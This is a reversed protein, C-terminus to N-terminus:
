HSKTYTPQEAGGAWRPLRGLDDLEARRLGDFVEPFLRAAGAWVPHGPSIQETTAAALQEQGLRAVFIVDIAYVAMQLLNALALPAALRLMAGLEARFPSSTTFHRM